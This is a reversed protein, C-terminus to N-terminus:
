GGNLTVYLVDQAQEEPQVYYEEFDDVRAPPKGVGPQDALWEFFISVADRRGFQDLAGILRDVQEQWARAADAAVDGWDLDKASM